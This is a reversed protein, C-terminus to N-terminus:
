GPVQLTFRELAVESFDGGSFVGVGGATSTADDWSGVVLGNVLFTLQRGSAWVALANASAGPRVVASRTWPILDIWRDNERRWIGVEGKDGVEFVYFRGAQNVGDRPGPGQDRVIIGYGGGAPGGVKHFTATV